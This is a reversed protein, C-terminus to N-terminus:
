AQRLLPRTHRDRALLVEDHWHASECRHGEAPDGHSLASIFRAELWERQQHFLERAHDVHVEEVIQRVPRRLVMWAALVCVLLIGAGILLGM